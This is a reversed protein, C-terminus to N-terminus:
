DGNYEEVFANYAEVGLCARLYGKYEPKFDLEGFYVKDKMESIEEESPLAAVIRAAAASAEPCWEDCWAVLGAFRPANLADTLANLPAEVPNGGGEKAVFSGGKARIARKVAVLAKKQCSNCFNNLLGESFQSLKHGWEDRVYEYVEAQYTMWEAFPFKNVDVDVGGAIAADVAAAATPRLERWKTRVVYERAMEPWVSTRPLWNLFSLAALREDYEACLARPDFDLGKASQLFAIFNFGGRFAYTNVAWNAASGEQMANTAGYAIVDDLYARWEAETMGRWFARRVPVREAETTANTMADYYQDRIEAATRDAFATWATAAIAAIIMLKKM